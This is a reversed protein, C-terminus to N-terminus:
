PLLNQVEEEAEVPKRIEVVDGLLQLLLRLLDPVLRVQDTVFRSLVM